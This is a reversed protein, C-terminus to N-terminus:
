HIERARGEAAPEFRPWATVFDPRHREARIMTTLLTAPVLGVLCAILVPEYSGTTDDILGSAPIGIIIGIAFGGMLLAYLMWLNVLLAFGLRTLTLLAACVLMTRRAGLRAFLAGVFPNSLGMVIALVAAGSSIQTISWGFEAQFSEIFVPFVSMLGAAGFFLVVSLAGVMKWGHFM